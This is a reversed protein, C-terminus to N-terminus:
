REGGAAPPLPADVALWERMKALALQRERENLSQARANGGPRRLV